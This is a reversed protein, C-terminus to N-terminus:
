EPDQGAGDSAAPDKSPSQGMLAAYMEAAFRRIDEESLSEPRGMVLVPKQQASKDDGSTAGTPLQEDNPSVM